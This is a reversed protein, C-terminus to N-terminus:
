IVEAVKRTWYQLMEQNSTDLKGAIYGLHITINDGVILEPTLDPDIRVSQKATGVNYNGNEDKILVERIVMAKRDRMDVSDIRGYAIMCHNILKTREPEEYDAAAILAVQALHTLYINEPLRRSLSQSFEDSLNNKYKEVLIGKAKADVDETVKGGFWYSTVVDEDFKDLGSLEAITELFSMLHPFGHNDLTERVLDNNGNRETLYDRLIQQSSDEGCFGWMNPQMAYRAADHLGIYHKETM